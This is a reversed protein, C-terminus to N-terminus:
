PDLGGAGGGEYRRKVSSTVNRSTTCASARKTVYPHPYRDSRASRFHERGIIGDPPPEGSSLRHDPLATGHLEARVQSATRGCEPRRTPTRSTSAASDTACKAV